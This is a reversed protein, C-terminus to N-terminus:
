WDSFTIMYEKAVKGKWPANPDHVVIPGRLGDPYQGNNHSHYWYTGPESAIFSYTFSSGTFTLVEDVSSVFRPTGPPIPCQTVGTTGDM